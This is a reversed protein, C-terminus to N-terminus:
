LRREEKPVGGHRCEKVSEGKERRICVETLRRHDEANFYDAHFHEPAMETGGAGPVRLPGENNPLEYNVLMHLKPIHLPFGKPCRMGGETGVAHRMNAGGRVDFPEGNWCEPFVVTVGLTPGGAPSDPDDPCNEPPMSEGLKKSKIVSQVANCHWYLRAKSGEALPSGDSRENASPAYALMKFGFPIAKTKEPSLGIRTAYYAGTDTPVVEEGGWTIRPVWYSSKNGERDCQNKQSDRELSPSDERLSEATSDQTTSDNGFFDHLHADEPEPMAVPDGLNSHSYLCNSTFQPVGKKGKKALAGDSALTAILVAALALFVVRSRKSM